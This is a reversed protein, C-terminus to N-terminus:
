KIMRRTKRSASKKTIVRCKSKGGDRVKCVRYKGNGLSVSKTKSKFKGGDKGKQKLVSTSKVKSDKTYDQVVSKSKYKSKFRKGTKGKQKISSKSSVYTTM